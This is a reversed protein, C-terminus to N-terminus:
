SVEDNRRCRQNRQCFVVTKPLANETAPATQEDNAGRRRQAAGGIPQPPAPACEDHQAVRHAPPRQPRRLWRAQADARAKAIRGRKEHLAANRLLCLQAAERVVTFLAKAVQHLNRARRAIRASQQRQDGERWDDLQAQPDVAPM